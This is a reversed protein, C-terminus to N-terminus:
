RDTMDPIGPTTMDVWQSQMCILKFVRSAKVIGPIIGAFTPINAPICILISRSVGM